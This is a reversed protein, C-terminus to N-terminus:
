HSYLKIRLVTGDRALDTRAIRLTLGPSEIRVDEAGAMVTLETLAVPSGRVTLRVAGADGIVAGLTTNGASQVVPTHFEGDFAAGSCIRLWRTHLVIGNGAQLMNQPDFGCLGIFRGPLAAGDLEV